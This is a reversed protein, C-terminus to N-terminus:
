GDVIELLAARSVFIRRTNTRAADAPVLFFGERADMGDRVGEIIRGDVFRVKVHAGDGHTGREGPALMFFIAKVETMPITEPAANGVQPHLALQPGSLDAFRLLGRRTQGSRVHVVVRHEGPLSLPGPTAEELPVLLDHEEPPLPELASPDLETLEDDGSLTAGPALPAFPSSDTAKKPPAAPKDGPKWSVGPDSWDRVPSRQLLLSPVHVQHVTQADWGTKEDWNEVPAPASADDWGTGGSSASAGPAPSPTPTGWPNAEAAAQAPAPNAPAPSPPNWSSAPEANPSGWPANAQAPPTASWATQALAPAWDVGDEGPAGWAASDAAPESPAPAAAAPDAQGAFAEGWPDGGVLEEPVLEEVNVAREAHGDAHGPETFGGPEIPDLLDHIEEASNELAIPEVERPAPAAALPEAETADSAPATEAPASDPVAPTESAAEASAEHEEKAGPASTFGGEAHAALAGHIQAALEDVGPGSSTAAPAAPAEAASASAAPPPAETLAPLEPVSSPPALSFPAATAETASAPVAAPASVPPEVFASETQAANGFAMPTLMFTATNIEAAPAALEGSAAASAPLAASAEAAPHNADAAAPEDDHALEADSLLLVEEKHEETEKHEGNGAAIEGAPKGRPPPPVSALQDEEASAWAEPAEIDGPDHELSIGAERLAPLSGLDLQETRLEGDGPQVTTTPKPAGLGRRMPKQLGSERPPARLGEAWDSALVDLPQAESQPATSFPTSERSASSESM